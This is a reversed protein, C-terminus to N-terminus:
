FDDWSMVKHGAAPAAEALRDHNDNFMERELVWNIIM